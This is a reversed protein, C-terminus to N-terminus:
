LYNEYHLHEKHTHKFPRSRKIVEVYYMPKTIGRRIDIIHCIRRTAKGGTKCSTDTLRTPDTVDEYLAVTGVRCRCLIQIPACFNSTASKHKKPERCTKEVTVRAIPFITKSNLEVALLSEVFVRGGARIALSSATSQFSFDDQRLYLCCSGRPQRVLNALTTPFTILRGKFPQKWPIHKM